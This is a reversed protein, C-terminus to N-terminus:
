NERAVALLPEILNHQRWGSWSPPTAVEEGSGLRVLLEYEKSPLLIEPELQWQRALQLALQPTGEAVLSMLVILVDVPETRSRQMPRRLPQSGLCCRRIASCLLAYRSLHQWCSPPLPRWGLAGSWMWVASIAIWSPCVAFQLRLRTQIPNPLIAFGVPSAM